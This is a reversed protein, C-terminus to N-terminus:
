SGAEACLVEAQELVTQTAKEQKDPPYGHKRLIRKVIVRLQARVNERVTWDITVNKRVADAVERAITRLTEDGLVKVASDNTELADYFAMEDETLGLREGREHARRLDKALGIMEEIVQAAEIARNQYKRVAQELMEAFSKAQVVNKRSRVKIEGSLLKRLLEVALNKQPMGRVEALFEDSLISLDPKKLGAAAFIDLIEDSVVAKSIIQRIAHDLEEDTKQEAPVSKALVSRVAQFFGVDDRIRFTEEHPVALAFAQSLDTVARLLRAKGDPQKLIHEQAAPLVSLREQPKGTMWPSWDFGRVLGAPTTYSGFLSRCIEYKEQMVAVAEAQNIATKGTGGSETYTALAQKLEDALGLYDVVLGGPKDKFVRNVRAITQMLGHGRMPKDIYMTHLSPADFGTLWMDRVIVLRFPDKPARFRLAMDERRKKNRIHSQWQIPDSASGTMIVKMSGQGDGDAHWQPRLAAIERYLEVCIRRSMCVVMAKGDMAALRNEFHDVLDRAILKIRNESGVVAELQAWKTKLKEKREVEEGETAEEFNPDIKPRESAKLELTALRSEYYIPVTAKDVVARQIDYISIYDGFVARTNADTQEIPTGTFGIFSAHPLADRMHRAFGDIFDYQSRHAEDAIVVINRRESLVPHRDGKEEPFFKQITTFVIGGSAVSLKARLDTRDTAQVPDQRLLDRCRAFTGFLQDDLDNRDTLVVITPNAMTPHLIVRGAYFAMTLSKGSGQTHWVVGVRRDGPEGGPQHGAKYHGWAEAARHEAAHRAARLTEEVAVNVAHFQHYGAMKKILKGQGEDEFAVFHRVLDLFRRKEFVGELVVQLESMTPAADQVGAITRWPKFWEKGAGLTGIRAQVGDSIILAVNTAFISPIQAQYTQLQRYATWITAEEDAPNKLEIVAFPLGNVFLVIDPRRQHQGESVTFQNVALWDNNEPRDFDIVKAQAGAISGGERRYEVNVGDIIMRHIARNREILMAADTRTLKRFADELAESPLEPNLRVLAQRLRQELVVDRYNPDGRESAPEGNAIDPGHLVGYGLAELWALAADEVISEAFLEM